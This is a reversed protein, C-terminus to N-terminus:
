PRYNLSTIEKGVAQSLRALAMNHAFITEIYNRKAKGDGELAELLDKAKTLGISWGMASSVFWKKAIKKREEALKLGEVAQELEWFAKKVQGSKKSLILLM